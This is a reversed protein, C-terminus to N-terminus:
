GSMLRRPSKNLSESSIEVRNLESEEKKGMKGVMMKGRYIGSLHWVFVLYSREFESIELVIKSSLALFLDLM